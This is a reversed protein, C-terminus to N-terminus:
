QIIEFKKIKREGQSEVSMFYLGSSFASIDLNLKNVGTTLVANSQKLMRGTHDFVRITGERESPSFINLNIEYQAPVPSLSIIDLGKEDSNQFGFFGGFSGGFSGGFFGGGDSSDEDNDDTPFGDGLGGSIM